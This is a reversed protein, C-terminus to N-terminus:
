SRPTPRRAPTKRPRDFDVRASRGKISTGNLAQIVKRAVVDHVEVVSHSEKIDIRGVSAGDIGAEGTIAGLLDGKVLGDRDGVTIFLKAWSPTSTAQAAARQPQTPSSAHAAPATKKRLLALAAAAIEAADYRALLPELAVLYPTIDETEMARDISERLQAVSDNAVAKPPFPVTQYGTRRGLRKFHAVERPLLVVVNDAGMSHRRDLTDDDAPCDCSLVVVGEVDKAEARAKLPDVGLWVPVSKDGPAGATFGHLTLYDGIDAARDETRCYVLAHRIGDRLLSEIINLAAAERPEPAIRFRVTGRSAGVENMTAPITMTRKFARDVLDSVAATIPLASLVRQTGEPLYDFVQEVGPLSGVSEILQAQDVVVTEVLALSLNSDTVVRLVSAPTGFLIDAKEPQVWAGGLAAVRHDTSVTLLAMAEALQNAAEETSNLVLVRPGEGAAEIREILGTAWGVLLGSGPGAELILNNGKRIIPIADRQIPTPTEIGEAALAEALEPAVGLDEFNEVNNEEARRAQAPVM